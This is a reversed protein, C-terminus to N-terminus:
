LVRGRRHNGGSVQAKLDVSMERVNLPQVSMENIWLGVFDCDGGEGIISGM